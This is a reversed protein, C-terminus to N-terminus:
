YMELADKGVWVVVDSRYESLDQGFTYKAGNGFIMKLVDTSALRESEFYAMKVESKEREGTTGSRVAVVDLGVNTLFNSVDSGLGDIGTENIITATKGEGGVQWDFLRNGVFSQLRNTNVVYNGDKQEIAGEKVMKEFPIERWSYNSSVWFLAIADLRSMTATPAGFARALLAKKIGWTNLTDVVLYDTIPLRLFGQMKQKVFEGGKNEYSGLRYLQSLKYKGISRSSIDIDALELDTVSQEAPDYSIVEVEGAKTTVALTTRLTRTIVISKTYERALFSGFLVIGLVAVVGMGLSLVGIEKSERKIFTLRRKM